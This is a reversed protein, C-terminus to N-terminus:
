RLGLSLTMKPTAQWADNIFFGNRWGGVHGMLQESATLVTRPVGLMFDAMSYGAMDGNFTFQGRPSNQPNRGTSLRRIDVGTRVNHNGRTYSMVNSMQYTTDFQTWNGSGAGVGTFASIGFAPIGLNGYRVDADFGPIGLGAGVGQLNNVWFYNLTDFDIRHYGFRLDNHLNSRLTHTYSVLTNKNVRPQTEQQIEIASGSVTTSDHWNYRVNVRATNSLNQDVRLMVQDVNETSVADGQYNSATGPRNPLPYYDLLKLAAPSLMSQPIQNGPFPQRTYPNRIQASVESFDGQRMRATPVSLIPSTQSESRIGEFAGMFFTRNRGNYLGPILVPGDFQFGFQDRRRPNPPNARNEFYGRADLADSQYYEFV